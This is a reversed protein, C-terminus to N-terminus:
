PRLRRLEDPLWDRFGQELSRAAFGLERRAKDSRGLYTVGASLRVSESAFLEPLPIVREVGAVIPELVHFVGPGLRVRPAKIGTVREAIEFAQVLTHSPGAIIYSEGVRGREMALLHGRATDEVHGWCFAPGRPVLPWRGKLYQVFMPHLPGTDGPGYVMGPQVIVLPLGARMMPEAVEFHAVWKTRDYETLWPGSHYYTEDVLVGRTDSFVALTSTYVIKPISLEWALELVNRTGDVNVPTAPSRDRAGVVYWGAIHFVGDVGTM